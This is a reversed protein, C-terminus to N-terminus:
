KVRRASLLSQLLAPDAVTRDSPISVRCFAGFARRGTIRNCPGRRADAYSRDLDARPPHGGQGPEGVRHAVVEAHHVAAVVAAFLTVIITFV